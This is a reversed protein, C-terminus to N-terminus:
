NFAAIDFGRRGDRRTDKLVVVELAPRIRVGLISLMPLINMAQFLRLVLPDPRRVIFLLEFCEIKHIDAVIVELLIVMLEVAVVPQRQHKVILKEEGRDAIIRLYTVRTSRLRM